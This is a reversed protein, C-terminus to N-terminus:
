RPEDGRDRGIVPTHVRSCQLQDRLSRLCDRGGNPERHDIESRVVRGGRLSDRQDALNIDNNESENEYTM